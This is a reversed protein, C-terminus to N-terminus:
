WGFILVCLTDDTLARCLHDWRFTAYGCWKRELQAQRVMVVPDFKILLTTKPRERHEIMHASVRCPCCVHMWEHRLYCSHRSIQAVEMNLKLM